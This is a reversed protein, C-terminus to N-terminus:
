KTPYIFYGRAAYHDSLDWIGWLSQTLVRPAFIEQSASIPQLNDNGTLTYDLYELYPKEAWYNTNSDFSLNHGKNEPETANLIYAMQDRDGPLGIKNVNFDGALIVAEDAPINQARIFEGMEDLQALRATRNTDDDSSQTHTAFVHYIYGQKNIRTYIVGRTAACQIGSCNTYKLNKEAEVPWPTLIRTGSQMIKGLKFIESSTFSYEKSLQKLLKSTRIPDFVETLVLADYGSMVSPMETLRSDVKKSGFITTAWINYSLLSFENGPGITPKKDHLQLVYNVRGGQHLNESNFAITNDNDALQIEFRQITNDTQPAITLESSDFGFALEDETVKQTLNFSYDANSLSITINQEVNTRTINAVDVTSLPLVETTLLDVNNGEEIYAYLTHPTSNTFQIITHRETPVQSMAMLAPTFMYLWFLVTVKKLM